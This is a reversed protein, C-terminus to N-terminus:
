ATPPKDGGTVMSPDAFRIVGENKLQGLLYELRSGMYTPLDSLLQNQIDNQLGSLSGMAKTLVDGKIKAAAEPTWKGTLKLERVVTEGADTIMSTLVTDILDVYQKAKMANTEGMKQEALALLYDRGMKALAIIFGILVPVLAMTLMGLFEEWTM